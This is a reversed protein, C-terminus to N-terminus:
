DPQVLGWQYAFVVLQVRDRADLKVISRGLHTRATASSIGLRDAIEDNTLGLAALRVVERERDTLRDLARAAGPPKREPRHEAPNVFAGILKRTAAADLLADGRAVVQVAQILDAPEADKLVFGSAGARLASFVYEDLDFTTLILVRVGSLAGDGTIRRTAEIGDMGPMRVDMVVVDPRIVRAQAVAEAGGSAEGVIEFGPEAELIVRLGARALAQDDVLLVRIV